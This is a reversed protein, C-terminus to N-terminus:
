RAGSTNKHQRGHCLVLLLPALLVFSWMIFWYADIFGLMSAQRGLESALLRPTLPDWLSLGKAVLWDQLAPNFPNINGGLRNWNVQTMRTLVTAAASIGM